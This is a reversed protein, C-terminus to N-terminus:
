DFENRWGAKIFFFGCNLVFNNKLNRQLRGPSGLREWLDLLVEGKKKQHDEGGSIEVWPFELLCGRWVSDELWSIERSCWM